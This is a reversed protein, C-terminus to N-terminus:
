RKMHAHLRHPEKKPAPASALAAMMRPEASTPPAPLTGEGHQFAEISGPPCPTEADTISLWGTNPPQMYCHGDCVVPPNSFRGAQSALGVIKVTIHEAIQGGHRLPVGGILVDSVTYGEGKPIEFVAREIMGPKGRIMRWCEAPLPKGDPRTFGTLDLDNMYLGVPNKLTLAFGLRALDNVSGGITPDSNRNIGGYAACCILPDAEVVRREKKNKRLITADAGLLIEASLSNAPQALHMIGHTSNWKNYPNYAGKPYIVAPVLPNGHYDVFDVPCILDAYQVEPSVLERYLDLLLKPDGKFAYSFNGDYDMLTDGHMAQWYEPPESTFTVRTIKDTAPDRTVHWECYEDQPRYYLKSWVDGTYYPGALDARHTLPFLGDALRLAEKYGHIRKLTRPFGNWVLEQEIAAGVTATKAQNYYQCNGAGVIAEERKIAGDFWGSVARSWQDYQDPIGKFDDLYAPTDYRELVM